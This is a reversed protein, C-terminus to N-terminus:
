NKKNEEEKKQIEELRKENEKKQIEEIKKQNELEIKSKMEDLEKEKLIINSKMENEYKEKLENETKIKIEKIQKEKEEEVKKKIENEKEALAEKYKQQNEEDKKKMEEEHKLKMEEMQKKLEEIMKQNKKEAATLDMIKNIENIKQEEINISNNKKGFYQGMNAYNELSNISNGLFSSDNKILMDKNPEEPKKKFITGSRLPDPKEDQSYDKAMIENSDSRLFILFDEKSNMMIDDADEDYYFLSLKKMEEDSIGFAKQFANRCEEFSSVEVQKEEDNYKFTILKHSM